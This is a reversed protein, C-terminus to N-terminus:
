CRDIRANRMAIRSRRTQLDDDDPEDDIDFAEEDTEDEDDLDIWDAVGEDVAKESSEQGAHKLRGLLWEHLLSEPCISLTENRVQPDTDSLLRGLWELAFPGKLLKDLFMLLRDPDDNLFRELEPLSLHKPLVILSERVAALADRAFLLAAESEPADVARAATMRVIPRPDRSLLSCIEDLRAASDIGIAPASSLLCDDARKYASILFKVASTISHPARLEIEVPAEAHNIRLRFPEAAQGDQAPAACESRASTLAERGEPTRAIAAAAEANELITERVMASRDRLLKLRTATSLPREAAQARVRYSANRALAEWFATGAMETRSTSDRSVAGVNCAKWTSDELPFETLLLTDLAEPGIAVAIIGYRLEALPIPKKLLNGTIQM